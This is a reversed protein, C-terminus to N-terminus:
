KGDFDVLIDGTSTDTASWDYEIEAKGDMRLEDQRLTYKM